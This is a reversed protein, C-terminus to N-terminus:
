ADPGGAAKVLALIGAKIADPLNDWATAMGALEPPLIPTAVAVPQSPVL